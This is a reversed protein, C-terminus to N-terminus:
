VPAVPQNHTHVYYNRPKTFLDVINLQNNAAAHVNQQAAFLSLLSFDHIAFTIDRVPLVGALM